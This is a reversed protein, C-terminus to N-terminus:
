LLKRKTLIKRWDVKFDETAYKDIWDNMETISHGAAYDSLESCVEVVANFQADLRELDKYHEQIIRDLAGHIVYGNVQHSFTIDEKLIEVLKERTLNM